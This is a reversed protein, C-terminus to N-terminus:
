ECQFGGVHKLGQISYQYMEHALDIFGVPPPPPIFWVSSSCLSVGYKHRSM